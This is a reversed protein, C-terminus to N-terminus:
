CPSSRNARYAAPEHSRNASYVTVDDDCCGHIPSMGFTPQRANPSEAHKKNVALGHQRSLENFDDLASLSSPRSVGGSDTTVAGNTVPSNGEDDERVPPITSRDGPVGTAGTM